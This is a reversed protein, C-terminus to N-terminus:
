SGEQWKFWGSVSYEEPLASRKPNSEFYNVEDNDVTFEKGKKL